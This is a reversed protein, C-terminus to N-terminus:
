IQKWLGVSAPKVFVHVSNSHVPMILPLMLTESLIWSCMEFEKLIQVQLSMVGERGMLCALPANLM